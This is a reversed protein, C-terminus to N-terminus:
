IGRGAVFDTAEETTLLGDRVFDAVEGILIEEEHCDCRQDYCFPKEPSHLIYEVPLLYSFNDPALMTECM